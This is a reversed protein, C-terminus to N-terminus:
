LGPPRLRTKALASAAEIWATIRQPAPEKTAVLFPLDSSSLIRDSLEAEVVQAWWGCERLEDLITRSLRLPHFFTGRELRKHRSTNLALHDFLILCGKEDTAKNLERLISIRVSRQIVMSLVCSVLGAHGVFPISALRGSRVKVDVTETLRGIDANWYQCRQKKWWYSRQSGGIEVLRLEQDRSEQSLAELLLWTM